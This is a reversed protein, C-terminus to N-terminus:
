SLGVSDNAQSVRGFGFGEGVDSLPNSFLVGYRIAGGGYRRNIGDMVRDLTEKRVTGSLDSFLDTQLPVSTPVLESIGVTVSRLPKTLRHKEKMLSFANKAIVSYSDTPIPLRCHYQRTHLDKDRLSINVGCAKKGLSILRHGLEECLALMVAKIEDLTNLDRRTTTGHSMSKIPEANESPVVPSFDRGNAVEILTLGNKGLCGKLMPPYARALQGITHIGYSALVAGTARGVGMLDSAPLHWIKERFGDYPIVTVADPKKMDSGLKAFMKNFSVGVSVTLGLESKIRERVNNAITEGDGFLAQSGTVDLWCEDAGFPEVLDTYSLYIEKALRSFHIYEDYHPELIILERCKAMAKVTPEGTTIGFKKAVENKALVIGHREEVSGCVAVPLSFLRPDKRCEVSAFFNNMDCHLVTRIM